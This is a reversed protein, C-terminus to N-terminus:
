DDELRAILAAAASCALVEAAPQWVRPLLRRAAIVLMGIWFGACWRCTLLTVLKPPAPDDMGYAQWSGERRRAPLEAEDHWGAHPRNGPTKPSRGRNEYTRAILDDRLPQTIVDETALRTLRYSAIADLALSPM